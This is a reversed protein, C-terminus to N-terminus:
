QDQTRFRLPRRMPDGPHCLKWRNVIALMGKFAHREDTTGAPDLVITISKKGVRIDGPASFLNQLARKAEKPRKLHPALQIALESEADAAAIRLTDIITKYETTHRVPADDPGIEAITVHEPQKRHRAEVQGLRRVLKQLESKLAARKESDKRRLRALERRLTGERQRLQELDRKLRRRKPNPILTDPSYAEVKRGDLQNIGWRQVGHKFGNEQSWRGFMTRVLWEADEGSNTLVNVQHGDPMLLRLRRLRGRRKGLNCWDEVVVLTQKEGERDGDIEIATGEDKFRRRSLKRYPAREYTVFELDPVDRLLAMVEPFSGGRDFGILIRAGEELAMRLISAMPPLYQALSGNHSVTGRFIPRGSRDHVYYDSTGPRPRKDQMRWTWMVRHQGTYTRGHNDAFFVAPRGPEARAHAARILDGAQGFHLDGSTGERCYSGLVKRTWNASPAGTALLLAAAGSTALRRVGEVCKQGAALAILTADVVVRV